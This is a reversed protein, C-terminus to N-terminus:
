RALYEACEGLNDRYATRALTRCPFIRWDHGKNETLWAVARAQTPADAFIGFVSSGSGSLMAARAGSLQLADKVRAIEPEQKLVVSEFDNALASPFSEALAHAERSVTFIHATDANTLDPAHLDRYATATAVGVGPTVVILFQEPLDDLVALDTGLGTGLATGGTLFFPVDAGLGAGIECLEAPRAPVRWLRALGLLTVAANSSGGGLGGGAPIQKSLHIAAGRRVGYRQRLANAARVVLNTEDLPINAAGDYTLTIRGDDAHTSFTLKDAVDISQFVTVIEHYGDPRRGLVRLLWNIKAYSPLANM